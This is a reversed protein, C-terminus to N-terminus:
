EDWECIFGHTFHLDHDEWGGGGNMNLAMYNGSGRPSRPMWNTYGVASGDVWTYQGEVKEDTAGIWLEGPIPKTQSLMAVLAEQERQDEIIVLHGGNDECAKQAQKWTLPDLILKYHHGNWSIAGVMAPNPQKRGTPRATKKPEPKRSPPNGGALVEEKFESLWDKIAVAEEPKNAKSLRKMEEEAEKEAEAVTKANADDHAKRNRKVGAEAKEILRKVAPSSLPDPEDGSATALLVSAVIAVLAFAFPLRSMDAVGVPHSEEGSLLRESKEAVPTERGGRM